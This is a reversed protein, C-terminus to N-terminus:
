TGASICCPIKASHLWDQVRNVVPNVLAPLAPRGAWSEVGGLAGPSEGARLTLACLLFAVKLGVIVRSPTQTPLELLPRM